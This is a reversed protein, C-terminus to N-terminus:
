RELGLYLLIGTTGFWVPWRDAPAGFSLPPRRGGLSRSVNKAHQKQRNAQAEWVLGPERQRKPMKALSALEHGGKVGIGSAM